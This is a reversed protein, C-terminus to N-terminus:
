ILAALASKVSTVPLREITTLPKPSFGRALTQRPSEGMQQRYLTALRGPNSFGFERALEGVNVQSPDHRVLQRQILHLRILGYYQHPGIGVWENFTKFLSRRSSYAQEALDNMSLPRKLDQELMLKEAAHFIRQQNRVALSGEGTPLDRAFCSEFINVLQQSIQDRWYGTCGNSVTTKLMAQQRKALAAQTCTFLLTAFLTNDVVRMATDFENLSFKNVLEKPLLCSLLNYDSKIVYQDSLPHIKGVVEGPGYQVGNMNLPSSSPYFFSVYVHDSYGQEFARIPEVGAVWYVMLDDLVLTDVTLNFPGPALKFVDVSNVMVELSKEAEAASFSQLIHSYEM